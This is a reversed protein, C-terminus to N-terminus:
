PLSDRLATTGWETRVELMLSAVEEVAAHDSVLAELEWERAGTEATSVAGPWPRSDMLRKLWMSWDSPLEELVADASAASEGTRLEELSERIKVLAATRDLRTRDSSELTELSNLAVQAAAITGIDRACRLLLATRDFSPPLPVALAFAEDIEAEAFAQKAM